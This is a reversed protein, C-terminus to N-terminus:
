TGTARQERALASLVDRKVIQLRTGNIRIWGRRRFRTLIRSVTERTSGIIQSIEEHTLGMQINTQNSAANRERFWRLLLHALRASISAAFGVQRIGSYASKCRRSLQQAVKTRFTDDQRMLGLFDRRTIFYATTPEMAEVTTAYTSGSLMPELGILDGPMSIRLIATKGHPSIFYEKARGTCICFIGSAQHGELCLHEGRSYRVPAWSAGLEPPHSLPVDRNSITEQDFPFPLSHVVALM